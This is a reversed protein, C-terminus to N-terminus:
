YVGSYTYSVSAVAHSPAFSSVNGSGDKTVSLVPGVTNESWRDDYSVGYITEGVEPNRNLTITFASAVSSHLWKYIVVPQEQSLTETGVYDWQMEEGSTTSSQGYTTFSTGSVAIIQSTYCLVGGIIQAMKDGVSPTSSTTYSTVGYSNQWKYVNPLPPPTESPWIKTSGVYVEQVPTSGVYIAQVLTTGVTITM